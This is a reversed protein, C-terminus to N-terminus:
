TSSELREIPQRHSNMALTVLWDGGPEHRLFLVLRGRVQLSAEGRRHVLTEEYTEQAYARDGHVDVVDHTSRWGGPDYDAFVRQWHDRIADRGVMEPTHLILLRADEAFREALADPDGSAFIRDFTELATRVDDM